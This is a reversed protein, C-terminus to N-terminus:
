RDVEGREKRCSRRPPWQVAGPAARLFWSWRRTRSSWSGQMAHVKCLHNPFSRSTPNGGDPRSGEPSQDAPNPRRPRGPDHVKHFGTFVITRWGLPTSLHFDADFVAHLSVILGLGGTQRFCDFFFEADVGFHDLACASDEIDVYVARLDPALVVYAAERLVFFDDGLDLFGDAGLVGM